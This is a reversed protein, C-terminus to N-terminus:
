WHTVWSAPQGSLSWTAANHLWHSGLPLRPKPCSIQTGASLSPVSIVPEVPTLFTPQLLAKTCLAWQWLPLCAARGTLVNSLSEPNNKLPFLSYRQSLIYPNIMQTKCSLKATQFHQHRVSADGRGAGRGLISCSAAGQFPRSNRVSVAIEALWLVHLHFVLSVYQIYSVKGLIPSHQSNTFFPKLLLTQTSLKSHFPIPIETFSPSWKGRNLKHALGTASM